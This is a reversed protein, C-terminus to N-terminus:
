SEGLLGTADYCSAAGAGNRERNKRHRSPAGVDFMPLIVFVPLRDGLPIIKGWAKLALTQEGTLIHM